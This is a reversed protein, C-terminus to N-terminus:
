IVKIDGSSYVKEKFLKLFEKYLLEENVMARVVPDSAANEAEKLRAQRM